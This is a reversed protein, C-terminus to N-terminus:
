QSPPLDQIELLVGKEWLQAATYHLSPLKKSKGSGRSSFPGCASLEDRTVQSRKSEWCRWSECCGSLLSFLHRNKYFIVSKQYPVESTAPQWTTLAPRSTSTTIILKSRMFCLRPM